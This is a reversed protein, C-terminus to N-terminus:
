MVHGYGFRRVNSRQDRGHVLREVGDYRTLLTSLHRPPKRSAHLNADATVTRGLCRLEYTCLIGRASAWIQRHLWGALVCLPDRSTEGVISLMQDRMTRIHRTALRRPIGMASQALPGFDVAACQLSWATDLLQVPDAIYM